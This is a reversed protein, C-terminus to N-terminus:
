NDNEEQLPELKLREELWDTAPGGYSDWFEQDVSETKHEAADVLAQKVEEHDHGRAVLTEAIEQLVSGATTYPLGMSGLKKKAM